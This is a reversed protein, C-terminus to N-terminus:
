KTNKTCENFLLRKIHFFVDTNKMTGQFNESGPGYSFMPVMTGTHIMGHMAWKAMVEHKQINGDTLAMGSAEPGGVVIVLTNGEKEAFDLAIGIAKDLDITELGVLETNRAHSARDIFMDGVLLFFGKNRQSLFSIASRVSETFINGRGHLIDPMSSESTFIALKRDRTNGIGDIDKAINYGKGKLEDLLDRDNENKQFYSMGGGIFVNPAQKVYAKAIEDKQIRSEVHAIFPAISGELLTNASVIGTALGVEMAYEIISKLPKGDPSIGIAGKRTNTGSAIATGHSPGDGNFDTLSNTKVLGISRMREINLPEESMIMGTQWQALSMGDGIFLIINTENKTDNLIEAKLYFPYAAFVFVVWLAKLLQKSNRWFTKRPKIYGTKRTHKPRNKPGKLEQEEDSLGSDEEDCFRFHRLFEDWIMARDNSDVLFRLYNKSIISNCNTVLSKRACRNSIM